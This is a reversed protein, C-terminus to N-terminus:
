AVGGGDALPAGGEHARVIADRLRKLGKAALVDPLTDLWDGLGPAIAASPRGLHGLHVKSPRDALSEYRLADLDLTEDAALAIAEDLDTLPPTM